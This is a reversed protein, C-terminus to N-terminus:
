STIATWEGIIMEHAADERGTQLTYARILEVQEKWVGEAVKFLHRLYKEGLIGGLLFDLVVVVHQSDSHPWTVVKLAVHVMELVLKSSNV